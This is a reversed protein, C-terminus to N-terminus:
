ADCFWQSSGQIAYGPRAPWVGVVATGLTELVHQMQNFLGTIAQDPQAAAAHGSAGSFKLQVTAPMAKGRLGSGWEGGVRRLPIKLVVRQLCMTSM